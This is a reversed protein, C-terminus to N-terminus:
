EGAGFWAEALAIMSLVWATILTLVVVFTTM